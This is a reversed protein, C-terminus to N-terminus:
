YTEFRVGGRREGKYPRGFFLLGKGRLVVSSSKLLFEDGIDPTISTGNTSTDTLLIFDPKREILCHIRSVHTDPLVLNCTADRGVTILPTEENAQLVKRGHRLVLCPSLEPMGLNNPWFSEGSFAATPIEGRWDLQLVPIILDADSLRRARKRLEANLDEAVAESILVGDDATALLTAIEPANDDIDKSRQRVFGQHIGIRLTLKRKPGQPLASCRHQMECAALVAEDATQFVVRIGYDFRDLLKGRYADVVREIRKLRREIPHGAQADDFSDPLDGILGIAAHLQYEIRAKKIM